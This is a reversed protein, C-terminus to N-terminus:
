WRLFSGTMNISYMPYHNVKKLKKVLKTYQIETSSMAALTPQSTLKLPEPEQEQTSEPQPQKEIRITKSISKSLRSVGAAASQLPQQRASLKKWIQRMDKSRQKASSWAPVALGVITRIVFSLWRFAILLLSDALLVIGVIWVAAILIFTGLSAFHKQLFRTMAIGIMGGSGNPFPYLQNPWLSYFSSSVAVALLAAGIARLIPQSILRGALKAVLFYVASILIVFIGPGIYYLLYYACFAGISGCWNAPPSNHPNVFRSPWDGINFSLCSCVLVVLAAIAFCEIAPKHLKKKKM